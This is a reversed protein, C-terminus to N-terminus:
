RAPELIVVPITRDTKEEYDGFGPYDQKNWEWLRDREKPDAVRARVRRTETGLEVTADPHAVLNHYWAPNVPGGAFSAFVILDDGQRRYLVPSEREQGTKAGTTHLILLPANGFSEVKGGNARFEEIIKENWDGAVAREEQVSLPSGCGVRACFDVWRGLRESTREPDHVV